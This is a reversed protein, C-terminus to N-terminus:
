PTLNWPLVSLRSFLRSATRQLKAMNPKSPGALPVEAFLLDKFLPYYQLL